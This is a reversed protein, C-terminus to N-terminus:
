PIVTLSHTAGVVNHFATAWSNFHNASGSGQGHATAVSQATNTVFEAVLARINNRDVCINYRQM